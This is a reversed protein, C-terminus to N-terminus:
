CNFIRSYNKLPSNFDSSVKNFFNLACWQIERLNSFCRVNEHSKKDLNIAISAGSLASASVKLFYTVSFYQVSNM